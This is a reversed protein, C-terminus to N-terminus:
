KLIVNKIDCCQVWTAMFWLKRTAHKWRKQKRLLYWSDLLCDLTLQNDFILSTDQVCLEFLDTEDAVKTKFGDLVQSVSEPKFTVDKIADSYEFFMEAAEVRSDNQMEGNFRRYVQVYALVVNVVHLYFLPHVAHPGKLSELTENTIAQYFTRSSVDLWINPLNLDSLDANKEDDLIVVKPGGIKNSRNQLYTGDAWWPSKLSINLVRNLNGSSAMDHFRQRQSPTLISLMDETSLLSLAEESAVEEINLRHKLRNKLEDLENRELIDEM